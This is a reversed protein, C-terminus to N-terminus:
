FPAGSAHGVVVNMYQLCVGNLDLLYRQEDTLGMEVTGPM